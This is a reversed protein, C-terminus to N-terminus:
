KVAHVSISVVQRVWRAPRKEDPVIVQFPRANEPLPSGDKTIALLIVRDTFEPDLEAIAFVVQYGDAGTVVVYTALAAGRLSATSFGAKTLVDRLAPGEYKGTQDHAASSIAHQPLAKLDSLSLTVPRPVDGSVTVSAPVASQILLFGVLALLPTM